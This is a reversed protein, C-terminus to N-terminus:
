ATDVIIFEWNETNYHLNLHERAKENTIIKANTIEVIKELSSSHDMTIVEYLM